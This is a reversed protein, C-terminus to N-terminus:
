DMEYRGGASDLFGLWLSDVDPNNGWMGANSAAEFALSPISAFDTEGGFSSGFDTVLSRIVPSDNTAISYADLPGARTHESESENTASNKSLPKIARERWLEHLKCVIDAARQPAHEKSLAIAELASALRSLMADATNVFFQKRNRYQCIMVYRAVVM